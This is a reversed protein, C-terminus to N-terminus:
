DRKLMGSAKEIGHMYAMGKGPERLKAIETIKEFVEDARDEPVVTMIVEKEPEIFKGIFGIKERIGTGRAYFSTVGGSTLKLIEKVVREAKGREVICTILKLGSM